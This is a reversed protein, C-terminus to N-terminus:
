EPYDDQSSTSAKESGIMQDKKKDVYWQLEKM